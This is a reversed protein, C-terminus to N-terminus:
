LFIDLGVQWLIKKFIQVEVFSDCHQIEHIM